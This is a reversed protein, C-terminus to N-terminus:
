CRLSSNEMHLLIIIDDTVHPNHLIIAPINWGAACHSVKVNPVLDLDCSRVCIRCTYGAVCVTETSNKDVSVLNQRFM